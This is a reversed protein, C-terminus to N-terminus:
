NVSKPLLPKVTRGSVHDTRVRCEILLVAAKGAARVRGERLLKDYLASLCRRHLKRFNERFRFITIISM